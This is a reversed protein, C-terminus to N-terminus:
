KLATLLIAPNPIRLKGVSEYAAAAQRVSTEVAARTNEPLAEMNAWDAFAALLSDISAMTWSIPLERVIPDHFGARGAM